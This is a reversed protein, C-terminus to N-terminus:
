VVEIISILEVTQSGIQIFPLRVEKDKFNVANHLCPLLPTSDAPLKATGVIEVLTNCLLALDNISKFPNSWGKTIVESTIYADWVSSFVASKNAGDRYLNCRETSGSGDIIMEYPQGNNLRIFDGYWLDSNFQVLLKLNKGFFPSFGNNQIIEKKLLYDMAQLQQISYM